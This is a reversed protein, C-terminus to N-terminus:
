GAGLFREVLLRSLSSLGASLAGIRRPRGALVVVAWADFAAGFAVAAGTALTRRNAWGSRLFESAAPPLECTASPGSAAEVLAGSPRFGFSKVGLGSTLPARTRPPVVSPRIPLVVGRAGCRSNSIRGAPWPAGRM